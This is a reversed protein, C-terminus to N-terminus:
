GSNKRESLSFGASWRAARTVSLAGVSGPVLEFITPATADIDRNIAGMQYGVYSRAYDPFSCVERARDYWRLGPLGIPGPFRGVLFPAYAPGTVSPFTSTIAHLGGQARLRAM